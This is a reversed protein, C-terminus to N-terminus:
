SCSGACSIPATLGRMTMAAAIDFGITDPLRLLSDVPM